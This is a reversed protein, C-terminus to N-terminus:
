KRNWEWKGADQHDLTVKYVRRSQSHWVCVGEPRDYGPVAASGLESLLTLAIRVANESYVGQYLVPVPAVPVGGIVLDVDKHADTNFLSFRRGSLGYGRGIGKGWWEGFHLGPGLLEALEAENAAAWAAFGYNDDGPYILRKRSQATVIGSASVHLGANTGDLKETVTAGRFLRATKPWATFTATATM